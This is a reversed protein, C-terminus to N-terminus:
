KPVRAEPPALKELLVDASVNFHRALLPIMWLQPKRLGNEIHGYRARSIGIATAVEQQTEKREARLTKLIM